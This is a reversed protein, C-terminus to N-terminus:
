IEWRLISYEYQEDYFIVQSEFLEKRERLRALTWEAAEESTMTEEGIETIVRNFM